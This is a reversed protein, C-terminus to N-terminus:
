VSPNVKSSMVEAPTPISPPQQVLLMTLASGPQAQSSM